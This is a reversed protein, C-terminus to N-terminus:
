FLVVFFSSINSMLKGFFVYVFLYISLCHFFKCMNQDYVGFSEREAEPIWKCTENARSSYFATENEWTDSTFLTDVNVITDNAQTDSVATDDLSTEKLHCEVLALVSIAVVVSQWIQQLFALTRRGTRPYTRTPTVEQKSTQTQTQIYTQTHIGTDTLKERDKERHIEKNVHIYVCM